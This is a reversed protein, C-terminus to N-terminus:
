IRGLKTTKKNYLFIIALQTNPYSVSIYDPNSYYLHDIISSTNQTVRTPTTITQKLDFLQVLHLWKKQNPLHHDM